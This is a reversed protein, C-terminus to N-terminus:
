ASHWATGSLQELAQRARAEILTHEIPVVALDPECGCAHPLDSPEGTESFRMLADIVADACSPCSDPFVSEFDSGRLNVCAVRVAMDERIKRIVEVVTWLNPPAYLGANWLEWAVTNRSVRTPCLTVGRVGLGTLYAASDLVDTVAEGDTLFPPKVMLYVKPEAGYRGMVALAREFSVRSIRTNVLVERVLDDASQLGIGIELRVPGLAHAFPALAQETIFQPLSEVVLRKVGSAAVLRAIDAQVERPIERPAFFSGDNYLSLVEYDPEEASRSLMDQVRALLDGASHGRGYNNENTFPCMTCTPVSCGDSMLIVKKRGVQSGDSLRIKDYDVFRPEPPRDTDSISRLRLSLDTITRRLQRASGFTNVPSM